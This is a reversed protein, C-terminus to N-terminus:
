AVPKEQGCLPASFRLILGDANGRAASRDVIFILSAILSGNSLGREKQAKKHRKAASFEETGILVDDERIIAAV